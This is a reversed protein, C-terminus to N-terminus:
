VFRAGPITRDVVDEFSTKPDNFVWRLIKLLHEAAPGLLGEGPAKGRAVDNEIVTGFDRLGLIGSRQVAHKIYDTYGWGPPAGTFAMKVLDAALIIPVSLMLTASPRVNDNYDLERQARKLIVNHMAFTFQKLHGVLMFRPDSMWTPRQSASPRLVASDVFRFMAEQVRAAREEDATTVAGGHRAAFQEATLLIRGKKHLIDGKELGLEKLVADNKLNDILYSEGAATAAIRMSDNWHQMGNYKFFMRNVAQAGPSMYSSGYSMGMAELTSDSSIIGMMRAMKEAHSPNKDFLRKIATVYASGADGLDGSRAAIAVPDIMQSFIALPLLVVNQATMIWSMVSKTDQSIGNGDLTGELGRVVTLVEAQEKQNLKAAKIARSINEGSNGFLRAYEARHVAQKTYKVVVDALEKTQFKAFEAANSQNIFTFQRNQVGAAFPTFGMHGVSEALDIHGDGKIIADTVKKIQDQSVNNKALLREWAARNARITNSDWARPFYRGLKNVPVWDKAKPDFRKVGAKDMYDYMDEFYKALAKELKSTPPLMSQLNDLAKRREVASTDKLILALRNQWEGDRKFRRQVFGLSGTESSFRDALANLVPVSYARLRDPGAQYLKRGAAVVSPAMAELKTTLTKANVDKIVEAAISMDSFAGERFKTMLEVAREDQSALGVLERIMTLLRQFLSTGTQGLEPMLGAEWFQFMYAVREEMDDEIQKTAEPHKKLLERLKKMAYPSNATAMLDRRVTRLNADKGLARFFAHLAEHMAVGHMDGANTAIDIVHQKLKPDWSYTGSGMGAAFKDFNVKIKAGLMKLLEAKIANQKKIDNNPKGGRTNQASRLMSHYVANSISKVFRKSGDMLDPKKAKAEEPSLGMRAEVDRSEVEGTIREYLEHAIKQLDGDPGVTSRLNSMAEAMMRQMEPIDNANQARRYADIDGYAAIIATDSNGGGEFGEVDQIAHQLEHMLTSIAADMVMGHFAAETTDIEGKERFFKFLSASDTNDIGRNEIEASHRSIIDGVDGRKELLGIVVGVATNNISVGVTKQSPSFAGGAGMYEAIGLDSTFKYGKMKEKLKEFGPVGDLVGAVSIDRQGAILPKLMQRLRRVLQPSRIEKRLKGDPGRFWGLTSWVFDAAGEKGMTRAAKNMAARAAAAGEPDTKAGVFNHKKGETEAPKAKKTRTSKRKSTDAGKKKNAISQAALKEFEKVSLADTMAQADLRIADKHKTDYMGDATRPFADKGETVKMQRQRIKEYDRLFSAERRVNDFLGALQEPTIGLRAIAELKQPSEMLAKLLGGEKLKALNVYTYGDVTTGSVRKTAEADTVYYVGDRKVAKDTAVLKELRALGSVLKRGMQGRKELINGIIQNLLELTRKAIVSNQNGKEDLRKRVADRRALLEESDLKQYATVLRERTKTMSWSPDKPMGASDLVTLLEPNAELIADTKATPQPKVTVRTDAEGREIATNNERTEEGEAFAAVEGGKGALTPDRALENERAQYARDLRKYASEFAWARQREFDFKGAAAYYDKWEKSGKSARSESAKEKAEVMDTEAADRRNAAETALAQLEELLDGADRVGAGVARGGIEMADIAEEIRSVYLDVLEEYGGISKAPDKKPETNLDGELDNDAEPDYEVDVEAAHAEEAEQRLPNVSFRPKRPTKKGSWSGKEKLKPAEPKLNRGKDGEEQERIQVKDDLKTQLEVIDDRQLVGAIAAYLQEEATSQMPSVVSGADRRKHGQHKIMSIASLKLTKGDTKLFTLVSDPHKDASVQMKKIEDDRVVDLRDENSAEGHRLVEYMDLAQKEGAKKVMENFMMLEGRLELIQKERGTKSKHDEIRKKIDARVGAVGAKHDVGQEDLYESYPVLHTDSNASAGKTNNRAIQGETLNDKSMRGFKRFPRQNSAQRFGYQFTRGDKETLAGFEVVKEPSSQPLELDQRESSPRDDAGAPTRVVAERRLNGYYELVTQAREPSGFAAELTKLANNKQTPNMQNIKLGIDDVFRAINNKVERGLKNDSLMSELFSNGQSKAVDSWASPIERTKMVANRLVDTGSLETVLDLTKNDIVESLNRLHDDGQTFDGDFGFSLRSSVAMLQRALQPAKVAEAPGLKAALDTVLPQIDAENFNQLNSRKSGRNLMEDLKSKAGSAMKGLGDLAGAMQTALRRGNALAHIYNQSVPSSYDGNLNTIRDRFISPIDEDQMLAEAVKKASQLKAADNLNINQITEEPTAGALSADEPGRALNSIDEGIGGFVSNVFDMASGSKAYAEKAKDIKANVYGAAGRLKDTVDEVVGKAPASDIEEVQAAFENGELMKINPDPEFGNELGSPPPADPPPLGLADTNGSTDPPLGAAAAAADRQAKRDMISGALHSPGLTAAAMGGGGLAGQVVADAVNWPDLQQNPDVYKNALHEVGTQLGETVGETLAERGVEAAFSKTPRRFAANALSGPVISELLANVGGGYTAAKDREEVSSAALVPDSYQNAAIEGRSMMYSPLAAGAYASLPSRGRTVLGAALSPLSSTIGSAFAQQAFDVADGLGGVQRLSSVRPALEAQQKASRLYADRTAELNPDGAREQALASSALDGASIGQATSMVARMVDQDAAINQRIADKSDFTDGQPRLPSYAM